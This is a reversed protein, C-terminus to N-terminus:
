NCSHFSIQEWQLLPSVSGTWHPHGQTEVVKSRSALTITFSFGGPVRGVFPLFGLTIKTHPYLHVKQNKFLLQLSRPLGRAPWVAFLNPIPLGSGPSLSICFPPSFCHSDSSQSLCHWRIVGPFHWLWSIEVHRGSCFRYLVFLLWHWHPRPFDWLTGGSFHLCAIVWFLVLLDHLGSHDSGFVLVNILVAQVWTKHLYYGHNLFLDHTQSSPPPSLPPM